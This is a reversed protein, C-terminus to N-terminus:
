KLYPFAEEIAALSRRAIVLAGPLYRPNEVKPDVSRVEWACLYIELLFLGFQASMGRVAHLEAKLHTPDKITRLSELRPILESHFDRWITQYMGDTQPDRGTSFLDHAPSGPATEVLPIEDAETEPSNM